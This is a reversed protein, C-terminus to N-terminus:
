KARYSIRWETRDDFTTTEHSKQDTKGLPIAVGAFSSSKQDGNKGKNTDSESGGLVFSPPPHTETHTDTHKTQGTVTEEERVIEYGNPCKERILAEAQNRYYNPWSNSNSPIAVVGYGQGNEVFRAKACGALNLLGASLAVLIAAKRRMLM